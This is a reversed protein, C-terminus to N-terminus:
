MCGVKGMVTFAQGCCRIRDGVESKVRDCKDYVKNSVSWTLTLWKVGRMRGKM